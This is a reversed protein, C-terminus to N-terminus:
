LLGSNIPIFSFNYERTACSRIMAAADAAAAADVVADIQLLLLQLITM